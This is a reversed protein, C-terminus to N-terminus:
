ANSIRPRREIVQLFIGDDYVLGGTVGDRRNNRDSVAVIDAIVALSNLPAWARSRYAWRQLGRPLATSAPETV